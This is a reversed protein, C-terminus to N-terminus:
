KKTHLLQESDELWKILKGPNKRSLENLKKTKQLFSKKQLLKEKQNINNM